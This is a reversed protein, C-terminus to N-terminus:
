QVDLIQNISSEGDNLPINCLKASTRFTDWANKKENKFTDRAQKSSDRWAKWTADRAINRDIRSEISWAADLSKARIDLNVILSSSYDVYANKVSSERKAIAERTCVLDISKGTGSTPSKRISSEAQSLPSLSIISILTLTTLAILKKM